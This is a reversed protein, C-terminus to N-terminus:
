GSRKATGDRAQNLRTPYVSGFKGGTEPLVLHGLFGKVQVAQVILFQGLLDV